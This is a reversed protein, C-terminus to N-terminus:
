EQAAWELGTVALGEVKLTVGAAAIGEGTGCEIYRVKRGATDLLVRDGSKLTTGEVLLISTIKGETNRRIAAIRGDCAFEGFSTMTGPAAAAMIIDTGDHLAVQLGCAQDTTLTTGDRSAALLDATAERNGDNPYPYLVSVVGAPVTGNYEFIGCDTPVLPKGYGGSVFGQWYKEEPRADGNVVSAQWQKDSRPLILLGAKEATNRVATANDVVQGSSTPTFHFLLQLNHEAEAATPEGKPQVLDYVVWYPTGTDPKLFLIRREQRVTNDTAQWNGEEFTAYPRDYETEAYDYGEAALWYNDRPRNGWLRWGAMVEGAIPQVRDVTQINQDVLMLNHGRTHSLYHAREPASFENPYGGDGLLTSGYASVVIHMQDSHNHSGTNRCGDFVLHLDQPQWGSRMIMFGCWNFNRSEPEPKEGQKGFSTLYQLYPDEPYIKLAMAAYGPVQPEAPDVQKGGGADNIWPFGGNPKTMWLNFDFRPRFKELLESVDKGQAQALQAAAVYLRHRYYCLEFYAGDPFFSEDMFTLYSYLSNESMERIETFEPLWDGAQLLWLYTNPPANQGGFVSQVYRTMIICLKMAEIRERDSIEPCAATTKLVEWVAEILGHRVGSNRSWSHATSTQGWSAPTYYQNPYGGKIYYNAVKPFPGWIKIWRNVLDMAKRAFKVEGTSRYAEALQGLNPNIFWGYWRRGPYDYIKHWEHPDAFSFVTPEIKHQESTCYQGQHAPDWTLRMKDELLLEAIESPEKGTPTVPESAFAGSRAGSGKRPHTQLYKVLEACARDYDGADAAAIVPGLDPYDRDLGGFFEEDSMMYDPWFFPTQELVVQGIYFNEAGHSAVEVTIEDRNLFPLPQTAERWALGGQEAGKVYTAFWGERVPPLVQVVAWKLKGDGSGLMVTLNYLGHSLQGEGGFQITSRAWGGSEEVAIAQGSPTGALEVLRAGKLETFDAPSLVLRPTEPQQARCPAVMMALLAVALLPYIHRM